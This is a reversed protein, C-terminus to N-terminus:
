RRAAQCNILRRPGHARGAAASRDPPPRDGVSGLPDGAAGAQAQAAGGAARPPPGPRHGRARPVGACSAISPRSRPPPCRSPSWWTPRAARATPWRPGPRRSTAASPSSSRATRPTSTCRSCPARATRASAGGARRAEDGAGGVGPDGVGVGVHRQGAGGAAAGAPVGGPTARHVEEDDTRGRTSVIVGDDVFLDVVRSPRRCCGAQTTVCTSFWGRFRVQPRTWGVSSRRRCTPGRGGGPVAVPQVYIAPLGGGSRVLEGRVITRKFRTWRRRSRARPRGGRASWRSSRARAATAPSCRRWSAPSSRRSRAATGREPDPGGPAAGAPCGALGPLVVEV